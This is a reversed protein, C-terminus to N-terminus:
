GNKRVEVTEKGKVAGLLWMVEDDTLQELVDPSHYPQPLPESDMGTWDWAVVRKSLEACLTRLSAGASASAAIDSLAMVEALTRAPMLEVWEGKHVHYAIGEDIIEGDEVVRDIHVVCDDSPIRSPPIKWNPQQKGNKGAM